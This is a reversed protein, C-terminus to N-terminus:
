SREDSISLIEVYDMQISLGGIEMIVGCFKVRAKKKISQVIEAM